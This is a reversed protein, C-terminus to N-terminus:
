NRGQRRVRAEIEPGNCKATFWLREEVGGASMRRCRGGRVRRSGDSWPGRLWTAATSWWGRPSWGGRQWPRRGSCTTAGLPRYVFRPLVDPQAPRVGWRRRRAPPLPPPDLHRNPAPLGLRGGRVRYVPRARHATQAAAPRCWAWLGVHAAL